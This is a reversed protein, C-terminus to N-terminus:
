IHLCKVEPNTSTQHLPLNIQKFNTKFNWCALTLSFQHFNAFLNLKLSDSHRCTRSATVAITKFTLSNLAWLTLTAIKWIYNAVLCQTVSMALILLEDQLTCIIISHLVGVSTGMDSTGGGNARFCGSTGACSLLGRLDERPRKGSMDVSVTLVAKMICIIKM